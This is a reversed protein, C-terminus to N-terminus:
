AARHADTEAVPTGYRVPVVYGQKTLVPRTITAVNVTSQDPLAPAQTAPAADLSRSGVARAVAADIMAQLQDPTVTMAQAAPAAAADDDLAPAGEALADIDTEADAPAASSEAAKGPTRRIYNRRKPATETSTDM